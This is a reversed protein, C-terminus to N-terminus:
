SQQVAQLSLQGMVQHMSSTMAQLHSSSSSSSQTKEQQCAPSFPARKVLLRIVGAKLRQRMPLLQLQQQMLM